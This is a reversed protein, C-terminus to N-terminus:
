FCFLFDLVSLFSEEHAQGFFIQKLEQVVVQCTLDGVGFCSVLQQMAESPPEKEGGFSADAGQSVEWHLQLTGSCEWGRHLQVRFFM